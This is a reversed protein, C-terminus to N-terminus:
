KYEGDRLEQCKWSQDLVNQMLRCHTEALDTITQVTRTSSRYTLTEASPGVKTM